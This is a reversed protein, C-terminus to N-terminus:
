KAHSHWGDTSHLVMANPSLGCKKNSHIYNMLKKAKKHRKESDEVEELDKEKTRLNMIEKENLSHSSPIISGLSVLVTSPSAM